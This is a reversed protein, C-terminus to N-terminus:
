CDDPAPEGAFRAAIWAAVQDSAQDTVTDHDATPVELLDVVQGLGCLRDFLASTRASLVLIDQGGQVLLLPSESAVKGPDNEELWAQGVPSTRPDTVFYDPAAAFEPM